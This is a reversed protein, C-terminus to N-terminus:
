INVESLFIYQLCLKGLKLYIDISIISFFEQEEILLIFYSWIGKMFEHLSQKKLGVGPHTHLFPHPALTDIGRVWQVYM